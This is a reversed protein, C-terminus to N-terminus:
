AQCAAVGSESVLYQMGVDYIGTPICDVYQADYLAGIRIAQVLPDAFLRDYFGGGYGLREGARTFALGPAVIVDLAHHSVSKHRDPSPERIGYRGTSLDDVSAIDYFALQRGEVRPFAVTWGMTRLAPVIGSLDIEGQISDYVAATRHLSSLTASTIWQLLAHQASTSLQLREDHPLAQRLAKMRTRLELKEMTCSDTNGMEPM